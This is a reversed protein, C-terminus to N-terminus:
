RFTQTGKQSPKPRYTANGPSVSGHFDVQQTPRLPILCSTDSLLFGLERALSPNMPRAPAVSQGILVAVM